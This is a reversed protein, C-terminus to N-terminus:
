RRACWVSGWGPVEGREGIVSFGNDRLWCLCQARLGPGHTELHIAKVSAVHNGMGKLVELEAGEVDIKLLEPAGLQKERIVDAITFVEVSLSQSSSKSHVASSAALRGGRNDNAEFEFTATGTSSGLAWPFARAQNLNQYNMSCVEYNSPLPEFGYIAARPYRVGFFLSAVGINAGIDYIVAPECDPFEDVIFAEPSFFEALTLVDLRNDRLYVEWVKDESARFPVHLVRGDRFATIGRHALPSKLGAYYFLRVAGALSGGRLRAFALPKKLKGLTKWFSRSPAPASESKIKDRMKSPNLNAQTM